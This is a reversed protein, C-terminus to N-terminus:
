AVRAAQNAEYVRVFWYPGFRMDGSVRPLMDGADFWEVYNTLEGFHGVLRYWGAIPVRDGPAHRLTVM